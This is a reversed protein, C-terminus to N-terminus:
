PNANNNNHQNLDLEQIEQQHVERAYQVRVLVESTCEGGRGDNATFSIHYV